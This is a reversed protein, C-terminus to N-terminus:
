LRRTAKVFPEKNQSPPLADELEFSEAIAAADELDGPWIEGEDVRRKIDEIRKQKAAGNPTGAHKPAEEAIRDIDDKIKQVDLEGTNGGRVAVATDRLRGAIGTLVGM